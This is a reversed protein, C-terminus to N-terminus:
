SKKQLPNLMYVRAYERTYARRFGEVEGADTRQLHRIEV